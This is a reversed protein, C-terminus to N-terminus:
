QSEYRTMGKQIFKWKPNNAFITIVLILIIVLIVELLQIWIDTSQTFFDIMVRHMSSMPNLMFLMKQGFSMTQLDIGMDSTLSFVIVMLLSLGVGYMKLLKLLMYNVLGFLIQYEIFLLFLSIASEISIGYLKQILLGNLFGIIVSVGIVLLTKPINNMYYATESLHKAKKTNINIKDIILVSAISMIFMVLIIKYPVNVTAQQITTKSTASLPSVLFGLLKDNTAGNPNANALVGKFQKSFKNDNVEAKEFQNKVDKTSEVLEEGATKASEVSGRYDNIVKSIGDSSEANSKATENISNSAEVLGNFLENKESLDTSLKNNKENFVAQSNNIEVNQTKWQNLLALQSDVNSNLKKAESIAKQNEAVLRSVSSNMDKDLQNIDDFYGYVQLMQRYSIRTVLDLLEKSINTDGINTEGTNPDDPIDIDKITKGNQLLSLMNLSIYSNDLNSSLRTVAKEYNSIAKELQRTLGSFSVAESMLETNNSLLIWDDSTKREALKTSQIHYKITLSESNTDAFHIKNNIRRFPIQKNGSYLGDVNIQDPIKIGNIPESIGSINQSFNTNLLSSLERYSDEISKKWKNDSAFTINKNSLSKNLKEINMSQSYINTFNADDLLELQTKMQFIENSDAPVLKTNSNSFDLMVKKLETSKKSKSATSSESLSKNLFDNVTLNAFETEGGFQIELQGKSWNEANSINDKIKNQIIQLQQSNKDIEQKLNNVEFTLTGNNQNFLSNFIDRNAKVSDYLKSTDDSVVSNTMKMMESVFGAYDIDNSQKDRILGNLDDSFNKNSELNGNTSEIFNKLTDSFNGTTENISTAQESLSTITSQHTTVPDVVQNNLGLIHVGQNDVVKQVNQQATYLNTLISAMYVNTLKQNLQSIIKEGIKKTRTELEKDGKSNVKYTLEVKKPTKSNISLINNSFDSPIVILLNYDGDNLGNQGVARSVVSWEYKKDQSTSDVYNKGLNYSKNNYNVGKDENVLAINVKSIDKKDVDHTNNTNKFLLMGGVTLLILMIIAAATKVKNKM